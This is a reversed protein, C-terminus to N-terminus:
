DKLSRFIQELRSSEFIKSPPTTKGVIHTSFKDGYVHGIVVKTKPKVYILIQADPTSLDEDPALKRKSAHNYIGVIETALQEEIVKVNRYDGAYVYEVKEVSDAMIREGQTDCGILSTSLVLILVGAAVNVICRRWGM